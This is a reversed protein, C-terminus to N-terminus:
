AVATFAEGIGRAEAQNVALVPLCVQWKVVAARGTEM